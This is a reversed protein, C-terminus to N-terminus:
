FEACLYPDSDNLHQNKRDKGQSVALRWKKRLACPIGRAVKFATSLTSKQNTKWCQWAWQMEPLQYESSCVTWILFRLLLTQAFKNQCSGPNDKNGRRRKHQQLRTTAVCCHDCLDGWVCATNFRVESLRKQLYTKFPESSYYWAWLFAKTSVYPTVTEWKLLEM